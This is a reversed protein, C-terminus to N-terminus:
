LRGANSWNSRYINKLFTCRVVTDIPILTRNYLIQWHLNYKCQHKLPVMYEDFYDYRENAWESFTFRRLLKAHKASWLTYFKLRGREENHKIATDLLLQAVKKDGSNKIHTGYWSADESSEYFGILGQFIGENDIAGYAHYSNLDSLYTDSFATHYYEVYDQDTAVFYNSHVMAGMYKKKEFLRRVDLIHSSDLKVIKM